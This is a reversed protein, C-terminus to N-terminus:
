QQVVKARSGPIVPADVPSGEIYVLKLKELKALPSLDKVQTKKMSLKELKTMSALPSLDSVETGDISLETLNVLTAIPKLDTVATRGIDLRDLKVLRAIPTLDSVKNLSARLSELQALTSLPTLDDLDGAGLFLDKMGTLLPFVCPDLDNVKGTSLNVSRVAKLDAASLAGKEKSLKRRIETELAPDGFEVNPGKKCDAASKKPAKPAKVEKPAEKPPEEKKPAASTTAAAPETGPKPKDDCAALLAALVPLALALARRMTERQVTVRAAAVARSM